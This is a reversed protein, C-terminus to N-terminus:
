SRVERLGGRSTRFPHLKTEADLRAKIADDKNIFSGRYHRHGNAMITVLWRQRRESWWIGAAGSKNDSRLNTNQQNLAPTAERLNEIKNAVRNRNEHDLQDSPWRGNTIAFIIRHALLNRRKGEIKVTIRRYGGHGITGAIKGAHMTIMRTWAKKNSFHDLPRHRWTLSGTSPEISFCERLYAISINADRPINRKAKRSSNPNLPNAM